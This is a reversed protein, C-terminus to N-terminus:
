PIRGPSTFPVLGRLKARLDETVGRADDANTIVHPKLLVILETRKDINNHTGFLGGLIPISSLIPIGNKTLTRTDSFLGGLAIVEGDHVAVTTSIRRTSITPSQQQTAATTSANSVQSVEQSVDLQVMGSANVRPTIKLIVGTDKYEITSVVANTGGVLNTASGTSIPVQDGVQLAATQNNLVLLKPASVVKVNTHQQLANLTASINNGGYFYSFGPFLRTPTSTTGETYGVNSNGSQFNWQVGYRLDDTLTVETIAAEIMIQQPVIDLKRLAEEIVAYERGTGLVIVANNNEDATVRAGMAGGAAAGGPGTEGGPRKPDAPTHAPVPPPATNSSAPDREAFADGPGNGSGNSSGSGSNSAGYAANITRTLDRARGNQVRYVFIRRENSEGERDLIEVWRRIDNLYQPQTSIALIGNLQEMTILRVMGHTPSDPANILKELSPTILRSDTRQPIYLAFSTNRLWDVDFQRLIERASGRQGTTGAITIAGSAPDTATVVGPLVSDLVKRVEEPSIFRVTIIESGFGTAEPGILGRANAANQIEYGGAVPVLALNARRLAVEFADFLSGRSLPQATVLSVRGNVGQAIVYKKHLIDGLVAQAVAAVESDPFNVAFTGSRPQPTYSGPVTPATASGPLVTSRVTRDPAATPDTAQAIAPTAPIPIDGPPVAGLATTSTLWLLTLATLPTGPTMM